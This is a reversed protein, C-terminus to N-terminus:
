RSAPRPLPPTLSALVPQVRTEGVVLALAAAALLAAAAADLALPGGLVGVLAGAGAAGVLQGLDASIRYGSIATTRDAALDVVMAAPVVLVSGVTVGIGACCLVFLPLNGVEGTLWLVAAGWVLTPLLAVLRGRRDSV